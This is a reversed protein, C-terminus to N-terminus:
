SRYPHGFSYTYIFFIKLSGLLNSNQNCLMLVGPPHQVPVTHTGLFAAINVEIQTMSDFDPGFCVVHKHM